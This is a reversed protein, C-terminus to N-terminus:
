GSFFHKQLLRNLEAEVESDAAHSIAQHMERAIGEFAEVVRPDFHSGSDRRLIAMAEDFSFPEKYPRRSTLADFVDVVAFIRANVPIGEGKLGRMYGSGDYKEHHHEVVDRAGLLWKSRAIIDVGLLVHTRMAAFEEETLRGPKLLINDSIGIKGVDHLFAGSILSRVEDRSRGMAEALRIAYITVRYNHINTDSDRKAIAGGLVEMLEINGKLLDGSLRILGRNLSIIIPYLMVSTAFIILVVLLLTRVVDDRISNFTDKDVQYVGEFYGALHGRSDELPLLVQMYITGEIYFKYYEVSNELPFRHMHKKLEAEVFEAGPDTAELFKKKNAQYLEIVTFHQKLFEAAKDKILQLAEPHAEDIRNFHDLTDSTFSGAERTALKLVRDDVKEMEWYFVIGGMLASLVLWGLLLRLLVKKHINSDMDLKFLM